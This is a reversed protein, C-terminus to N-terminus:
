LAIVERTVRLDDQTMGDVLTTRELPQISAADADPALGTRVDIEEHFWAERSLSVTQHPTRLAITVDMDFAEGDEPDVAHERVVEVGTVREGVLYRRVGANMEALMPSTGYLPVKPDSRKCEFCAVDEEEDFYLRRGQFCTVLVSFRALNVRLLEFVEGECILSPQYELSKITKGKMSSLLSFAEATLLASM